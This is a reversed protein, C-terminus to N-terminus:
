SSTTTNKHISIYTDKVKHTKLFAEYPAFDNGAPAMIYPEMGLLKLSYAVNGATGGMQKTLKDVLFSLSIQHLKEPMIRDAFRGSFNMIYDYGLSGTVIINMNKDNERVRSDTNM